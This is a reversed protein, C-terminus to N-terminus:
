SNLRIAWWTARNPEVNRVILGETLLRSLANHLNEKTFKKGCYDHFDAVQLEQEPFERLTGLIFEKATGTKKPMIIEKLASTQPAAQACVM